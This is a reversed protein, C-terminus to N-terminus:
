IPNAFAWDLLDTAAQARAADSSSGLVAVIIRRGDRTASGILCYGAGTTRGTKVGDAGPYTGLLDNTSPFTQGHLKATPKVVAAAFTPDGLLDNALLVMDRASSYGNEDDLGVPNAAQTDVLGMREATQNMLTVFGAESGGIDAALSRAADNASVILMARFLVDRQFQEGPILGIASETSDTSLDPVTVLKTLDGTDLVVRATLLKMVSGVPRRDDASQEALWTETAPDYVAFAVADVSPVSAVGAVTVVSPTATPSSTTTADSTPVPETSTVLTTGAAADAVTSSVVTPDGTTNGTTSGTTSGTTDTVISNTTGTATDTDDGTLTVAAVGLGGLLVMGVSAVAIRRRLYTARSLKLGPPRADRSPSTV